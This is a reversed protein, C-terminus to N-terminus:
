SPQTILSIPEAPAQLFLFIAPQDKEGNAPVREPSRFAYSFCSGGGCFFFFSHSLLKRTNGPRPLISSAHHPLPNFIQKTAKEQPRHKIVVDRHYYKM